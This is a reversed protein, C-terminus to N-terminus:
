LTHIDAGHHILLKGIEVNGTNRAVVMFPTQQGANRSEIAAGKEILIEVISANGKVAAWHLPTDGDADRAMLKAGNAILLGVTEANGGDCAWHLPTCDRKDKSHVAQPDAEIIARIRSLDNLKVADLIDQAPAAAAVLLLCIFTSIFFNTKM